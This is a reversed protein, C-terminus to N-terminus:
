EGPGRELTMLLSREQRLRLGLVQLEPQRAGLASRRDDPEVNRLAQASAAVGAGEQRSRADSTRGGAAPERGASRLPPRPARCRATDPIPNVDSRTSFPRQGLETDPMSNVSVEALFPRLVM